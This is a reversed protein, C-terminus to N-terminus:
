PLETVRFFGKTGFPTANFELRTTTSGEAALVQDNVDISWDVLDASFDVSYIKGPSSNWVLATTGTSADHEISSIVIKTSGTPQGVVLANVFVNHSADPTELAVIGELVLAGSADSSAEFTIMYDNLSGPDPSTPFTLLTTEGGPAGWDARRGNNSVDDFAWITIPYITSPRLGGLTVRLGTGPASNFSGNAFVFDRWLDNQTLDAGQGDTNETPRDRTDLLVGFEAGVAETAVTVTGNSGNGSDAATWTAMTPSGPANFDFKAVVNAYPDLFSNPDTPDTGDILEAGDQYSDGDTDALNPDTGPQIEPNNPDYPLDHNEIGDLIGDGDTDPILPNTGTKTSSVWLGGINEWGDKAGDDDSDDDLPDTLREFEEQNSSADADFDDDPLVDNISTIADTEDADIILQEFSDPLGDNDADLVPDSVQLGNLFVNHSTSPNTASVLGTLVLEGSADSQGTVSIRYDNLTLPNISADFTLRGTGGGATWDAARDFGDAQRGSSADFAWLTLTYTANAELGSITIQLGSSPQSALSGNAFIFDSWMAAEIGGGTWATRDRSDLTVTVGDLGVTAVSVTGDTGNGTEAATWGAQVPSGVASFDFKTVAQGTGTFIISILTFAAGPHWPKLLRTM